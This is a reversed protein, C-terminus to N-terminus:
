LDGMVDQMGGLTPQRSTKSKRTLAGKVKQWNSKEPALNALSVDVLNHVASHTVPNACGADFCKQGSSTHEIKIKKTGKISYCEYGTENKEFLNQPIKTTAIASSDKNNEIRNKLAPENTSFILRNYQSTRNTSRNIRLGACQTPQLSVYAGQKADLIKGGGTTLYINGHIPMKTNNTIVVQVEQGHKEEGAYCASTAVLLACVSLIKDNFKM